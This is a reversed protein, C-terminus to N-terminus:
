RENRFYMFKKCTYTYIKEFYDVNIKKYWLPLIKVTSVVTWINRLHNESKDKFSILGLPFYGRSNWRSIGRPSERALRRAFGRSNMWYCLIERSIWTTVQTTNVHFEVYFNIAHKGGVFFKSVVEQSISHSRSICYMPYDFKLFSM